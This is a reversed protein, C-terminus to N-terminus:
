FPLMGTSSTNSLVMTSMPGVNIFDVPIKLISSAVQSVKANLGQGMDIGGHLIRVSGDQTWISVVAFGQNLQPIKKLFVFNFTIFCNNKVESVEYSVDYKMPM